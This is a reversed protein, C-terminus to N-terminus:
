LAHRVVPLAALEWVPALMITVAYGEALLRLKKGSKIRGTLFAIYGCALALGGKVVVALFVESLSLAYYLYVGIVVAGVQVTFVIVTAATRGFIKSYTIYETEEKTHRIKRAIEWGMFLSWYMAVVLIITSWPLASLPIGSQVAFLVVVYIFMIPVIPNHTALNLLLYKHWAAPVFFYHYMLVAYGLLLASFLFLQGSVMNPILLSACVLLLSFRIDSEKVKGSPLPRDGFLRRDIDRDKLEDMLRLILTLAFLTWIGVPTCASLSVARPGAIPGLLLLFSVCALSATALRSLPPYMERLYVRMRAHYGRTPLTAAISNKM